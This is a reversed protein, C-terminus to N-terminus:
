NCFFPLLRAVDAIGILEDMRESNEEERLKHVLGGVLVSCAVVGSCLVWAPSFCDVSACDGVGSPWDCM